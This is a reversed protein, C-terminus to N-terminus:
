HCEGSLHCWRSPNQRFGVARSGDFPRGAAQCSTASRDHQDGGSGFRRSISIFRSGDCKCDNGPKGEASCRARNQRPSAAGAVVQHEVAAFVAGRPSSPRPDPSVDPSRGRASDTPTLARLSFRREFRLRLFLLDIAPFVSAAVYARLGPRADQRVQENSRASALRLWQPATGARFQVVGDAM